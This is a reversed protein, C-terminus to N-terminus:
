NGFTFIGDADSLVCALFDQIDRNRLGYGAVVTVLEVSRIVYFDDFIM